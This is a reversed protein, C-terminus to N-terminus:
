EDTGVLGSAVNCENCRVNDVPANSAFNAVWDRLSEGQSQLAYFGPGAVITHKDSGAIFSRFQPIVARIDDNNETVNELLTPNQSNTGLFWSQAGDFAFDFRALAMDPHAQGALVYLNEFSWTEPTLTEFGPSTSLHELIGWRSLQTVVPKAYRYGGAGDGLSAIQATPYHDALASAMLPTPIAGASEGTVFIESAGPVNNFAWDLGAQANVRGRHHITFEPEDSSAREYVTDNSGLHVDGTCYPVYVMTHNAFPNDPNQLDFIGAGPVAQDALTMKYTPDGQPDCTHSASCGGGGELFFLLKEPDGHHTMLFFESGDSCMTDGGPVTKTWEATLSTSTMSPELGSDQSNSPDSQIGTSCAAAALLVFILATNKQSTM